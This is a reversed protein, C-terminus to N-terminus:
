TRLVVDFALLHKLVVRFVFAADSAATDDARIFYVTHFLRDLYEGLLLLIAGNDKALMITLIQLKIIGLIQPQVLSTGLHPHRDHKV